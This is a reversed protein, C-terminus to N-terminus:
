GPLAWVRCHRLRPAMLFWSATKENRIAAIGGAMFICGRLRDRMTILGVDGQEPMDGREYIGAAGLREEWLRDLGGAETILRRAEDESSYKPLGLDIGAEEQVWIAPAATCDSVGWEVPVDHFRELFAQLRDPRSM